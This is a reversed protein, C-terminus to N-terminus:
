EDIIVHKFKIPQTEAQDFGFKNTMVLVVVVVISLLGIIAISGQKEIKM